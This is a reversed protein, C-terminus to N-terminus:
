KKEWNREIQGRQKEDPPKVSVKVDPMETKLRALDADSIVVLDLELEKLKPLSKLHKLGGNWTLKMEGLSLSELSQIAAIHPLVAETIRPLFQPALRLRRLTTNTLCVVGADTVLTHWVRLETLRPLRAVAAMGADTFSSGGCGFSELRPLGALHAVGAGTFKDKNLIHFFTLQRLNTWGAMHKMGDDTFRAGDIGVKEVQDLGTLLALTEDTLSCKNYLTLTKVGRIQGIKEYDARTLAFSERCSVSVSGDRETNIQLGTAVAVALMPFLTVGMM